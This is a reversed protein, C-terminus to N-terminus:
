RTIRCDECLVGGPIRHSLCCGARRRQPRGEVITFVAPAHLATPAALAAEVLAVAEDSADFAEGCWRAAQGLRDGVSRWLARRPRFAGLADVLPAHHAELLEALARGADATGPGHGPESVGPTESPVHQWGADPLAMAAPWGEEADLVLADDLPPLAGHVLLGALAAGGALWAHKELQWTAAIARSSTATAAGIRDLQEELDGPMPARRWDPGTAAVPEVGLGFGGARAAAIPEIGAVATM